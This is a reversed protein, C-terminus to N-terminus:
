RRRSRRTCARSRRTCSTRWPATAPTARAGPACSSRHMAERANMDLVYRIRYGLCLAYPALHGLGAGVLREYEERSRDLADRYVDAM